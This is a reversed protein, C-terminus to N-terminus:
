MEQFNYNWKLDKDLYKIHFCTKGKLFKRLNASMNDFIKPNTYIPFFYFRADKPKPVLTAFYIGDVKKKGLMTEKTGWVEFATASDKRIKLPPVYKKLISKIIESIEIPNTIM